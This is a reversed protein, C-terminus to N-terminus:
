RRTKIGPVGNVYAVASGVGIVVLLTWLRYDSFAHSAYDICNKPATKLVEWLNGGQFVLNAGLAFLVVVVAVAIITIAPKM